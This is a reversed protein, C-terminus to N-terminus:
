ATEKKNLIELIYFEFIQADNPDTFGNQQCWENYAIIDFNM